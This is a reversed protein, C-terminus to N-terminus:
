EMKERFPAHLKATSKRWDFPDPDSSLRTTHEQIEQRSYYLIPLIAISPVIILLLPHPGVAGFLSSVGVLGAGLLLTIFVDRLRIVCNWSVNLPSAEERQRQAIVEERFGLRQRRLFRMLQPYKPHDAVWIPPLGEPPSTTRLRIQIIARGYARTWAVFVWDADLTAHVLNIQADWAYRADIRTGLTPTGFDSWPLGESRYFRLKMEPFFAHLDRFLQPFARPDWFHAAENVCLLPLVWIAVM